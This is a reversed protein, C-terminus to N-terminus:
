CLLHNCRASFMHCPQIVPNFLSLSTSGAANTAPAAVEDQLGNQPTAKVCHACCMSTVDSQLGRCAHQQKFREDHPTQMHIAHMSNFGSAISFSWVM